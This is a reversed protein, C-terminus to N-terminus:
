ENSVMRRKDVEDTGVDEYRQRLLRRTSRGSKAKISSCCVVLEWFQSVGVQGRYGGVRMM